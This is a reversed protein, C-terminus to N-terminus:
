DGLEQKFDPWGESTWHLVRARTHRNPDFLSEGKIEKYDRAHYIMVDTKGDEAVTFSNHGPGFRKVEENTYFVPEPSKHWSTPDLLDANEDAWILGLAYNHDTASASYTIFIKGNRKLVAAGENVEYVKKEWEYEPETIVVEPGELTTPNKMRSIILGTNHKDEATKQAWVLYRKGQHEFTTADLSFSDRQTWIRGEEKWKGKTPDKSTNSLVYMRINWINEAEGAAFYIYWKGNIRHLEPAWIHHSMPGSKHKSWVVVPEAKSLGNITKSSRIEIRDYEPATAILYYLGKDTRHVWPDARQKVLPNNFRTEQAQAFIPLLALNVLSCSIFTWLLISRKM